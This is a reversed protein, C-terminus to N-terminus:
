ALDDCHNINLFAEYLSIILYCPSILVCGRSKPELCSSEEMNVTNFPSISVRNQFFSAHFHATTASISILTIQESSPNHLYVKEMKPMGVPRYLFFMLRLLLLYVVVYKFLYFFSVTSSFISLVALVIRVIVHFNVCLDFGSKSKLLTFLNTIYTFIFSCHWLNRLSLSPLFLCSVQLLSNKLYFSLRGQQGSLLTISSATLM